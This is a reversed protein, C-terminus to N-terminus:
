FIYSYATLFIISSIFSDFRDFFGGHGPLFNSSDKLNNIRKFYSQALDGIASFFLICNLFIFYDLQNVIYNFKIFFIFVIINSAIIGGLYGEFTKNPSINKFPFNKGFYKGFIFSLTDFLIIICILINFIIFEYFYFLYIYFCIFSLLLYILIYIKFEIFNKIVEYIIISYIILGFILLLNLNTQLFIYSIILFFSFVFRLIFNKYDM